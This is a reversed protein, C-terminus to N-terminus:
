ASNWKIGGGKGADPLSESHARKIALILARYNKDVVVRDWVSFEVKGAAKLVFMAAMLELSQKKREPLPRKGCILIGKAAGELLNIAEDFPGKKM